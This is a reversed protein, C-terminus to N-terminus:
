FGAKLLGERYLEKHVPDKLPVVALWKEVDFQPNLELAKKRHFRAKRSNGAMALSAALLRHVSSQNSM